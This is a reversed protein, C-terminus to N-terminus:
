GLTRRIQKPTLESTRACIPRLALLERAPETDFGIGRSLWTLGGLCTVNTQEFPARLRTSIACPELLGRLRLKSEIIHLALQAGNWARAHGKPNNTHDNALRRQAAEMRDRASELDAVTYQPPAPRTRKTRLGKELRRAHVVAKLQKATAMPRCRNGLQDCPACSM